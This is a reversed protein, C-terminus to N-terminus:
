PKPKASEMTKADAESSVPTHLSYNLRTAELTTKDMVPCSQVFPLWLNPIHYELTPVTLEPSFDSVIQEYKLVM